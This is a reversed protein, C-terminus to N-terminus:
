RIALDFKVAFVLLFPDSDWLTPRADLCMIVTAFFPHGLALRKRMKHHRISRFPFRRGQVASITGKDTEDDDEDNGNDNAEVTAALGRGVEWMNCCCRQRCVVVLPLCCDFHLSLSLGPLRVAKIAIGCSSEDSEM